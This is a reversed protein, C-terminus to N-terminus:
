QFLEIDVELVWDIALGSSGGLEVGWNGRDRGRFAGYWTESRMAEAQIDM